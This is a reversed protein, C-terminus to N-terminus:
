WDNHGTMAFTAAAAKASERPARHGCRVAAEARGPINQMKAEAQPFPM